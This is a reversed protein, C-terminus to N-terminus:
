FPGVSWEVHPPPEPLDGLPTEEPGRMDSLKVELKPLSEEVEVQTLLGREAMLAVTTRYKQQQDEAFGSLARDFQQPSQFEISKVLESQWGIAEPDINLMEAILQMRESSSLYLGMACGDGLYHAAEKRTAYISNPVGSDVVGHDTGEVLLLADDTKHESLVYQGIAPWDKRPTESLVGCAGSCHGGGFGGGSGPKVVLISARVTISDLLDAAFGPVPHLALLAASVYQLGYGHEPPSHYFDFSVTASEAPPLRSLLVGVDNPFDPALNRLTEAPVSVNMQILADLVAAMADRKDIQEPSLEVHNSDDAASRELPQWQSALTLLDSTLSPDLSALADHAGWAVLRPDGSLLGGEIKQVPPVINGAPLTQASSSGAIYIAICAVGSLRSFFHV